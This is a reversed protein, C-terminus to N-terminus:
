AAKKPPSRPDGSGGDHGARDADVRTYGKGKRFCSNALFSSLAILILSLIAWELYSYEHHSPLPLDVVSGKCHVSSFLTTNPDKAGIASKGLIPRGVCSNGPTGDLLLLSQGFLSHIAPTFGTVSFSCELSGLSDATFAIRIASACDEESAASHTPDFGLSHFALILRANPALSNLHIGLTLPDQKSHKSLVVFSDAGFVAVADESTAGGEEPAAGPRAALGLVGQALRLGANGAPQSVCDDHREHVVVGRGRVRWADAVALTWAGGGNGAADADINGLDGVHAASGGGCGHPAAHPNFHGGMAM